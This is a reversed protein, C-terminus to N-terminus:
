KATQSGVLAADAGAMRSMTGGPDNAYDDGARAVAVESTAEQDAGGGAVVENQDSTDSPM